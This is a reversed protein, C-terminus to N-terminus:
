ADIQQAALFLNDMDAESLGLEAGIQNVMNSGRRFSAEQWALKVRKPVDDGSMYAEVQDLLGADDLAAKAQFRTATMADLREREAQAEEAERAERQDDTEGEVWESGTWEPVVLGTPKPVIKGDAYGDGKQATDSQVAALGDAPEPAGKAINVVLNSDLNVIAYRM